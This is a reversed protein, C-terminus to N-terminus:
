GKVYHTEIGKVLGYLTHLTPVNLNAAKALALPHGYIFEIESQRRAQVDLCLSSKNDGTGGPQTMM